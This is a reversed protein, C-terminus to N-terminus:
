NQWEGSFKTNKNLKNNPNYAEFFKALIHLCAEAVAGNGGSSSTIFDSNDKAFKHANSPAISYLVEKFVFHDFIGDGMYIVKNIDYNEKIWDVRKNTSVLEIDFKMDEVRKKSISFGRHDGSVFKIPLQSKLLSLGDSDDKGFIKYSKGESSYLFHGTTLVGDVDFIFIEPVM